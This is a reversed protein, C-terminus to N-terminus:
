FFRARCFFNSVPQVIVYCGSHSVAKSTFSLASRRKTNKDLPDTVVKAFNFKSYIHTLKFCLNRRAQWFCQADAVFTLNLLGALNRRRLFFLSSKKTNQTNRELYGGTGSCPIWKSKKAEGSLLISFHIGETLNKCKEQQIKQMWISGSHRTSSGTVSQM